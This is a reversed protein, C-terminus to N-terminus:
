VDADDWGKLWVKLNHDDEGYPPEERSIGGLKATRGQQFVRLDDTKKADKTM